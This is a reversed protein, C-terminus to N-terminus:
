KKVFISVVDHDSYYAASTEIIFGRKELAENTYIHDILNGKDHTSKKVQQHLNLSRLTSGIRSSECFHENFDGIVVTAKRQM